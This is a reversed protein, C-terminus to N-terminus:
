RTSAAGSTRQVEAVIQAEFDAPSLAQAIANARAAPITSAAMPQAVGAVSALPLHDDRSIYDRATAPDREIRYRGHMMRVLPCIQAGNKQVFLIERDGTRFAPMGDVALTDDGVTGGLFELVIERNDGGKLPREVAFTVLTKILSSGDPATFRESRVATVHGRCIADAEAVLQPFEPPEVTTARAFSAFALLVVILASRRFIM